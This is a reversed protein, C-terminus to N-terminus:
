PQRLSTPWLTVEYSSLEQGVETLWGTALQVLGRERFCQEQLKLIGGMYPGVGNALYKISTFSLIMAGM